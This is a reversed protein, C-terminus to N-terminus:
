VKWPKGRPHHPVASWDWLWYALGGWPQLPDFMAHIDHSTVNQGKQHQSIRQQAYSDTPIYDYRGLSLMVLGLAALDLGFLQRLNVTLDDLPSNDQILTNVHDEATSFVIAIKVLQSVIAPTFMENLIHQGGLLQQPTPFAHRTPNSPLSDGLRDVLWTIRPGPLTKDELTFLVAKIVDEFLTAGRLIQAGNQRITELEPVHCATELFPQLNEGLRLIRWLKHSVEETDKGGLHEHTQVTLGAAVQSVTVDIINGSALREVRNLHDKARNVSFPPQLLWQSRRIVQTLTFADPPTLIWHM